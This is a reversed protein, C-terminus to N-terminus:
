VAYGVRFEFSGYEVVQEQPSELHVGVIPSDVYADWQGTQPNKFQLANLIDQITM